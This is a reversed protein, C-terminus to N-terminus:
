KKWEIKQGSCLGERESVRLSLGTYEFSMCSWTSTTLFWEFIIKSFWHILKWFWVCDWKPFFFNVFCEFVFIESCWIILGLDVWYSGADCLVILCIDVLGILWGVDCRLFVWIFFFEFCFRSGCRRADPSGVVAM